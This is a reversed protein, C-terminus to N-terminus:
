SIANHQWSALDFNKDVSMLAPLNNNSNLNSDTKSDTNNPLFM